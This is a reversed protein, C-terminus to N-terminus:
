HLLSLIKIFYSLIQGELLSPTIPFCLMTYLSTLKGVCLIDALISFTDGMSSMIYVYLSTTPHSCLVESKRKHRQSGVRTM